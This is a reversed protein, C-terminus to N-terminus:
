SLEHSLELIKADGGVDPIGMYLAGEWQWVDGEAERDERKWKRRLIKSQVVGARELGVPRDVEVLKPQLVSGVPM